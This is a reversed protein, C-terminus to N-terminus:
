PQAESNPNVPALSKFQPGYLRLTRPRRGDVVLDRLLDGVDEASGLLIRYVQESGGAFLRLRNTGFDFTLRVLRPNLKRRFHSLSM